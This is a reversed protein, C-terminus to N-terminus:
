LRVRKGVSDQEVAMRKLQQAEPSKPSLLTSGWPLRMENRMMSASRGQMERQRLKDQALLLWLSEPFWAFPDEADPFESKHFQFRTKTFLFM